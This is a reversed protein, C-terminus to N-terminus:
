SRVCVDFLGSAYSDQVFKGYSSITMQRGGVQTVSQCTSITLAILLSGNLKVGTQACEKLGSALAYIIPPIGDMGRIDKEFRSSLEGARRRREEEEKMM